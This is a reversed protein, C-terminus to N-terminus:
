MCLLEFMSIFFSCVLSNILLSACSSCSTKLINRKDQIDQRDRNLEGGYRLGRM